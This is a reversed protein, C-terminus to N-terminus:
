NAEGSLWFDLVAGLSQAGQDIEAELWAAEATASGKGDTGFRLRSLLAREGAYDRGPTLRLVALSLDRFQSLRDPWDALSVGQRPVAIVRITTEEALRLQGEIHDVGGLESFLSWRSLLPVDTLVSAPNVLGFSGPSDVEIGLRRYGDSRVLAAELLRISNAAIVTGDDAQELMVSPRVCTLRAGSLACGHQPEEALLESLGEVVGGKPFRGGVAAGLEEGQGFVVVERLDMGLNVDTAKEIRELQAKQQSSEEARILAPLVHKRVPAFLAVQQLDLRAAFTAGTPVHYAAAREFHVLRFYLWGFGGVFALFLFLLGLLVGRSSTPTAARAGSTM